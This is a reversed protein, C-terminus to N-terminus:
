TKVFNVQIYKRTHLSTPNPLFREEAPKATINPNMPTFVNLTPSWPPSIVSFKQVTVVGSLNQSWGPVLPFQFILNMLYSLLKLCYQCSVPFLVLYLILCYILLYGLLYKICYVIYMGISPSPSSSNDEPRLPLPHQPFISAPLGNSFVPYVPSQVPPRHGLMASLVTHHGATSNVPKRLDQPASPASPRSISALKMLHETFSNNHHQLPSIPMRTLFPLNPVIYPFSPTIIQSRFYGETHNETTSVENEDENRREKKLTLDLGTENSDDSECAHNNNILIVNSTIRADSTPPSCPPSLEEEERHIETQDIYLRRESMESMKSISSLINNNESKLFPNSGSHVRHLQTVLSELGPKSYHHAPEHKEHTRIIQHESKLRILSEQPTLPENGNIVNTGNANQLQKARIHDALSDLKRMKATRSDIDFRHKAPLLSSINSLHQINVHIGRRIENHAKEMHSQLSSKDETKTGCTPCVSHVGEMHKILKNPVKFVQECFECPLFQSSTEHKRNHIQLNFPKTFTIMCEKCQLEATDRMHDLSVHERTVAHDESSFDCQKCDYGQNITNYEINSRILEERRGFNREYEEEDEDEDEDDDDRHILQHISQQPHSQKRKPSSKSIDGSGLEEDNMSSASSHLTPASDDSHTESEEMEEKPVHHDRVLGEVRKKEFLETAQIHGQTRQHKRFCIWNNM